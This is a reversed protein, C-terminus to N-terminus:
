KQNFEESTKMAVYILNFRMKAQEMNEFCGGASWSPIWETWDKNKTWSKNRRAVQTEAGFIWKGSKDVARFTYAEFTPNGGDYQKEITYKM